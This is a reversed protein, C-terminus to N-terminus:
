GYVTLSALIQTFYDTALETAAKADRAAIADVIATLERLTKDRVIAGVPGHLSSRGDYQVARRDTVVAEFVQM